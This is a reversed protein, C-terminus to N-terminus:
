VFTYIWLPLHLVIGKRQIIIRLLPKANILARRLNDDNNIPLLDQDSPDIYSVLFSIDKLNHLREILDRFDEFKPQSNREVSFRRFEADFMHLRDFVIGM